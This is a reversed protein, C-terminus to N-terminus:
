SRAVEKITHNTNPASSSPLHLSSASLCAQHNKGPVLCSRDENYGSGWNGIVPYWEGCWFPASCLHSTSANSPLQREGKAKEVKPIQSEWQFSECFHFHSYTPFDWASLQINIYPCQNRDRSINTSITLLMCTGNLLKRLMKDGLYLRFFVVSSCFLALLVRWLLFFYGLVMLRIRGLKPGHNFKGDLSILWTYLASFKNIRHSNQESNRQRATM